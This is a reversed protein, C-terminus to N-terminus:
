VWRTKQKRLSLTSIQSTNGREEPKKTSFGVILLKGVLPTSFSLIFHVMFFNDMNWYVSILFDFVISVSGDIGRM